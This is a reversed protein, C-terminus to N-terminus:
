RRAQARARGRAKTAANPASLSFDRVPAAARTAAAGVSRLAANTASSGSQLAATTGSSAVNIVRLETGSSTVRLFYSYGDLIRSLVQPLTGTYIGSITRPPPDSASLQILHSEQLAALVQGLSADHAEIQVRGGGADSVSVPPMAAGQDTAGLPASAPQPNAANRPGLAASPPPQPIPATPPMPAVPTLADDQIKGPTKLVHPRPRPLPTIASDRATHPVSRQLDHAKESPRFLWGDQGHLPADIPEAAATGALSLGCMLLLTRAKM